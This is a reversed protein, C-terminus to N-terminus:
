FKEHKGQETRHRVIKGEVLYIVDEAINSAHDGIREIHRAIGLLHIYTDVRAVDQRICQEVQGYMERNIADVEEDAAIVAYALPADLNVLADLSRHLMDQAKSAMLPYDFPVDVPEGKVLFVVREAINVVADGIRELESNIKLVAIIFRLDLAVPQHLALIKQCEEEIDVERQDIDNDNEILWTAMAVDRENLSKVAHFVVDEVIASLSLLQKKLKEIEHQLHLSM